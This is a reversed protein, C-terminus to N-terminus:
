TRDKGNPKPRIADIKVVDAAPSFSITIEATADPLHLVMANDETQVVLAGLRERLQAPAGEALIAHLAILPGRARPRRRWYDQLLTTGLVRM